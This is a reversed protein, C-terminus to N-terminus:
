PTISPYYCLVCSFVMVLFGTTRTKKWGDVSAYKGGGGALLLQSDSRKAGGTGKGGGTKSDRGGVQDCQIKYFLGQVKKALKDVTRQAEDASNQYETTQEVKQKTKEHLETVTNARMAEEEGMRKEYQNYEKDTRQIQELINDTEEIQEQIFKYDSFTKEQNKIYLSKIEDIDELKEAEVFTQGAAMAAKKAAERLKEFGDLLTDIKDGVDQASRREADIIDVLEQLERTLDSNLNKCEFLTSPYCWFM